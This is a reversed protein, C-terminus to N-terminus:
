QKSYLLHVGGDDLKKVDKIMFKDDVFTGLTDFASKVTADGSVYPTVVLSIEDVLHAKLFAGNIVAGGALSIAEIGFYKKLKELAMELNLDKTGCVIYPIEMSQLFALYSKSAQETVVEIARNKHGGYEFYNTEWGMKGKRDFSVDWTESKIDPIWDSYDIGVTEFKSLDPNGKAAYMRVTTSGNANTNSLRFLEESYFAGSVRGGEQNGYIGDIKGDISTHMHVIVKARDLFIM